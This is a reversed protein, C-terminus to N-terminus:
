LFFREFSLVIGTVYQHIAQFNGWDFFTGTGERPSDPIQIGLAFEVKLHHQIGPLHPILIPSNDELRRVSYILSTAQGIMSYIVSYGLGHDISYKDLGNLRHVVWLLDHHAADGRHYPQLGRIIGRADSLHEPIGTFRKRIAEGNFTRFIPFETDHDNPKGSLEWVIRNLATRVNHAFEGIAISLAPDPPKFVKLRFIHVPQNSQNEQIVTYATKDRFGSLMDDIRNAQVKAAKLRECAGDLPHSM